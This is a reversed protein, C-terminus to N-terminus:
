LHLWGLKNFPFFLCGITTIITETRYAQVFLHFFENMLGVSYTQTPDYIFISSILENLAQRSSGGGQKLFFSFLPTRNRADLPSKLM